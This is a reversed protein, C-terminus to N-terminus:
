FQKWSKIMVNLRRGLIDYKESYVKHDEEKIYGLDKVMDLIVQIENCSGMAMVLFRQFEKASRKKGYGEAINLPISMAARRIQNGLEYKEFDPFTRSMHHVSLALKYSDQYVELDKYSKIMQNVM